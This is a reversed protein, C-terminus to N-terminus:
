FDVDSFEEVWATVGLEIIDIIDLNTDADFFVEMEGDVVAVWVTPKEFISLKIEHTKGKFNFFIGSAM